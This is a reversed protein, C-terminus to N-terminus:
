NWKFGKRPPGSQDNYYDLERKGRNHVPLMFGYARHAQFYLSTGGCCWDLTERCLRLATKANAEFVWDDVVTVAHQCDGDSAELVVAICLCNKKQEHSLKLLCACEKDLRHPQYKGLIKSTYQVVLNMLNPPSGNRVLSDGYSSIAKAEQPKGLFHLASAISSSLCTDLGCTPYRVVPADPLLCATPVTDKYNDDFVSGPPLRIYKRGMSANERVRDLFQEPFNEQVWDDSLEIQRETSQIPMKALGLWQKREPDYRLSRVQHSSEWFTVFDPEELDREEVHRALNMAATRANMKLGEQANKLIENILDSSFNDTIFTDTSSRWTQRGSGSDPHAQVSWVRSPLHYRLSKITYQCAGPQRYEPLQQFKDWEQESLANDLRKLVQDDKSLLVHGDLKGHQKVAEVVFEHFNAKVFAKSVALEKQGNRLTVFFCRTERDYRMGQIGDHTQCAAEVSLDEQLRKIEKNTQHIKALIAM